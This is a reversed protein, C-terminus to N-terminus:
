IYRKIDGIIEDICEELNVNNYRKLIGADSTKEDAFDEEDALFRRCMEAYKPNTQQRERRVARELREGTEVQVYIPVVIDRGYYEVFAVYSELTGIYLYNGKNLDIQGDSVTFYHWKGHVTNYTRSEIVKGDKKLNSLEDENVFFYEVGNQENARMPRTTYGVVTKLGLEDNNKIENFITDKGTCSKGTIFFIKSM